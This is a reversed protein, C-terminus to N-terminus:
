ANSVCYLKQRFTEFSVALQPATPCTQLMEPAVAYAHLLPIQEAVWHEDAYLRTLPEHESMLVCFSRFLQYPGKRRFRDRDILQGAAFDLPVSPLTQLNGFPEPRHEAPIQVKM